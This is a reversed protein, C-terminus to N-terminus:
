AAVKRPRGPKAGEVAGHMKLVHIADIRGQLEDREAELADIRAVQVATQEKFGERERAIDGAPVWGMAEAMLGAAVVSVYVHGDFAAIETGFDFFGGADHSGIFPICACRHPRVAAVPVHRM